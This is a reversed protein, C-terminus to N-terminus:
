VIGREDMSSLYFHWQFNVEPGTAKEVLEQVYNEGFHTVGSEYAKVVHDVSKKKSVAM